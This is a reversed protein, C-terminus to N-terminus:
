FMEAWFKGYSYRGATGNYTGLSVLRYKDAASAVTFNDYEAYTSNGKFDAL